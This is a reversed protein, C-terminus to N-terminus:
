GGTPRWAAACASHADPGEAVVTERGEVGSLEWSEGIPEDCPQLGKFAALADGGWLVPKLISNFRYIQM